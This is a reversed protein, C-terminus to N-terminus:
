YGLCLVYIKEAATLTGTITTTTTTTVLHLDTATQGTAVCVPANAFAVNFTIRCDTGSTAGVTIVSAQDKGAISAATTGCSNSGVNAVTPATGTSLFRTTAVSTGVALAGSSFTFTSADGLLGATGAFPVRGSTLASDTLSPVTVMSAGGTFASSDALLGGTSAFPVRGSTLGSNTVSTGTVAGFTGSPLAISKWGAALPDSSMTRTTFYTSLTGSVRTNTFRIKKAAPGCVISGASTPDSVSIATYWFTGNLTLEVIDTASSTSASVFHVCVSTAGSTDYASSVTTTTVASIATTTPNWGQAEALSSFLLVLFFALWFGSFKKM